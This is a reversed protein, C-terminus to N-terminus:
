FTARMGGWMRSSNGRKTEIERAFLLGCRCNSFTEQGGHYIALDDKPPLAAYAEKLASYEYFVRFCLDGFLEGYWIEDKRKPRAAWQKITENVAEWRGSTAISAAQEVLEALESDM